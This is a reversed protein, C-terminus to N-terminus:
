AKYPLEGCLDATDAMVTPRTAAVERVKANKPRKQGPGSQGSLRPM